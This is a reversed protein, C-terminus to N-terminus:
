QALDGVVKCLAAAVADAIRRGKEVSIKSPDGWAGNPTIQKISRYLSARSPRLLDEEAWDYTALNNARPEIAAHRVTQPAILMMLSTELECAHGVGGPGTETIALLEDAILRWWSVVVIKCDPHDAGFQELLVQCIGRNGGHANFIV